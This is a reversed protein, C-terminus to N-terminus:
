NMQGFYTAFGTISSMLLIMSTALTITKCGDSCQYQSAVTPERENNVDIPIVPISISEPASLMSHVRAGGPGVVSIMSTGARPVTERRSPTDYPHPYQTLAYNEGTTRCIPCRTKNAPYGSSIWQHLCKVHIQGNCECSSMRLYVLPNKPDDYSTTELCIVCESDAM